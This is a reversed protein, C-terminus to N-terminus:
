TCSVFDKLIKRFRKDTIEARASGRGAQMEPSGATTSFAGRAKVKMFFNWPKKAISKILGVFSRHQSPIRNAFLNALLTL